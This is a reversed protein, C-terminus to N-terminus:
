RNDCKTAKREELLVICLTILLLRKYIRASYSSDQQVRTLELFLTWDVSEEGAFKSEHGTSKGIYKSFCNELEEGKKRM